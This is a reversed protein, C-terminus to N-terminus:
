NEHSREVKVYRNVISSRGESVIAIAESLLEHEEKLIRLRLDEATDEDKREVARQLLIPGGDLTEDVFHVTCGTIKVGHDYAQKQADIGPFAPLLSPHINIVRGPFRSLFFPSLVRMFGALVLLGAGHPALAGLLREEHSERPEKPRRAVVATAVGLRRAKELGPADPTDSLVIPIDEVGPLKGQQWARIVAEMNTGTGSILIAVKM